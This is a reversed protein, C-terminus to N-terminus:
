AFSLMRSMSRARNLDGYTLLELSKRVSYALRPFPSGDFQNVIAVRYVAVVVVAPINAGEVRCFLGIQMNFQHALKLLTNAPTPAIGQIVCAPSLYVDVLKLMIDPTFHVSDRIAIKEAPVEEFEFGVAYRGPKDM